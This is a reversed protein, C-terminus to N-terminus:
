AGDKGELHARIEDRLLVLPIVDVARRLLERQAENEAVLNRIHEAAERHPKYGDSLWEASKLADALRLATNDSM